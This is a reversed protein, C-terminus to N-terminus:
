PTEGDARTLREVLWTDFTRYLTLAPEIAAIVRGLDIVDYLHTLLNRMGCAAILEQALPSPMAGSDALASFVERYSGPPVQGAAKLVQLSLDAASECLLQLLREIAYHERRRGEEDLAGYVGLDHVYKRFFALKREIVETRPTAM